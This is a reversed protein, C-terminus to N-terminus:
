MAHEVFVFQFVWDPFRGVQLFGRLWVTPTVANRIFNEFNFVHAGSLNRAFPTGWWDTAAKVNRKEWFTGRTDITLTHVTSGGGLFITGSSEVLGEPPAKITVDNNQVNVYGYLNDEGYPPVKGDTWCAPDNYCGGHRFPAVPRPSGRGRHRRDRRRRVCGRLASLASEKEDDNGEEPVHRM